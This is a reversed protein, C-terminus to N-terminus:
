SVPPQLPLELIFTAGRGLGDSHVRLSGGLEEAALASSHLGFGHGGERTTFGHEFIRTLLEPAIGMGQDSVEIRVREASAREVKVKLRRDEPEMASMAYKANSILNILVMLVKHKDTVVPPLPEVSREVKVQHRTLAASNISLADEVVEELAVPEILGPSRAYSQQQSVITGIHTTYREIEDLLARLGGRDNELHRGLEGLYPVLKRGREDEELFAVLKGQQEALLAAVRSVQEIRLAALREKAVLASTNVSNLVNGVNHLVNTAVEAMGARRAVDVLRRNLDKLERTREEVREELGENAQRLSEERQQVKDAMLRFAGALRGLEDRRQTDLAVNFEGAAVRDTAETFALLPRSVQRRLVWYMIALELLLSVVGFLLVYRAAQLAPRSVEEEPLVTVFNWGPGRLRAASLYEHYEPFELVTERPERRTVREFLARLHTRQAESGLATAGAGAPASATQLNYSETAGELQLAPHAILQGDDRFLVNYAGPLHENVTRDMLEKLLVDHGMTAVHRGGVDLPTSVSVMWSRAVPDPYAACWRTERAPNNGPLSLVMFELPLPTFDSEAEKYWNPSEPWFLVLPGEPLTIYTNVFRSRLAPGYQALVDYAALIRRRLEADLSVGRPILVGPLQTGDFSEPRNRITGDPGKVFLSDFRADLEQGAYALLKRELAQKLLTHNDEALVFIGEERQLREKVYVELQTLAETRLTRLVHLYSVLTTLAIIAAIRVGM